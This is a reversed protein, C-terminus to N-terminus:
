DRDIGEDEEDINIGKILDAHTVTINDQGTTIMKHTVRREEDYISDDPNEM